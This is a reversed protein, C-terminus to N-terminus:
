SRPAPQTKAVAAELESVLANAKDLAAQALDNAHIFDGEAQAVRADALSQSATGADDQIAVLVVAGDKGRPAQSILTQAQVIAAEAQEFLTENAVRMEEKRTEVQAAAETATEQVYTLLHAARDYDRSLASKAQQAEIETQAVAFSDQAAQYLDTVYLDAEVEEAATLATQAATVEEQPPKACGVITATLVFVAILTLLTNKKM